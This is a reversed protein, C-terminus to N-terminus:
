IRSALWLSLDTESMAGTTRGREAGRRFIIFTPVGQIGFSAGVESLRDINLRVVMLSGAKRKALREVVPHMALCPGCSPSYFDVLIPLSSNYFLNYSKEPPLELVDGPVPLVNHCKGCVVKKEVADMPYNNTAGCQFCSVKIKDSM